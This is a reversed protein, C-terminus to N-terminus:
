ANTCKHLRTAFAIGGSLKPRSHAFAFIQPISIAYEGLCALPNPSSDQTPTNTVHNSM